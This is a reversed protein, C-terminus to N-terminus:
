LNPLDGVFTELADPGTYTSDIEYSRGLRHRYWDAARVDSNVVYITKHQIADANRGSEIEVTAHLEQVEGQLHLLQQFATDAAPLSYGIAFIRKAKRLALGAHNWMEAVSEHQYRPSKNMVPPIILPVKGAVAEYNYARTASLHVHVSSTWGMVPVQYLTEGAYDDSGSYYWNVSGHLKYLNTLYYPPDKPIVCRPCPHEPIGGEPGTDTLFPFLHASTCPLSQRKFRETIAREVLTDYNFTVVSSGHRIWYDVMPNLWDPPDSALTSSEGRRIDERLAEIMELALAKQAWRSPARVFPAPELLCNLWTEVNNEVRSIASIESPLKLPKFEGQPTEVVVDRPHSNREMRHKLSETLESMLPMNESISKSFGAGLIFLEERHDSTLSEINEMTTSM